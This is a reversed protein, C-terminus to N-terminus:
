CSRSIPRAALDQPLHVVFRSGSPPPPPATGVDVPAPDDAALTLTGGHAEAIWRAIPLGLGAGGSGAGSRKATDLRVFREFIRARDAAAIGPGTDAVELVIGSPDVRLSVAVRGGAPTHSVANDLLNTLMQRLLAEDGRFLVEADHAVVEVRVQRQEAVVRVARVCEGILEDLYFDGRALPRGDADARALLFMDDVMRTLRASQEAVIGLSDRYDSEARGSRGLTVQAATRIVSVPTRLQHSADAMFQRQAHLGHALRDLLANFARGLQGLEDAPNGITLRADPTRDSIGTAQAAMSALPDLARRAIWWGGLAAVILALPLLIAAAQRLANRERALPALPAAVFVTFRYGRHAMSERWVRCEGVTALITRAEGAGDARWAGINAARVDEQRLLTYTGALLDGSASAIAVTWGPVALGDRTDAAAAAPDEREDLENGMVGGVTQSIRALEADLQRLSLRAQAVLLAYGSAVLVGCLVITYWLTLRARISLTV